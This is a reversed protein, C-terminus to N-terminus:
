TKWPGDGISREKLGNRNAYDDMDLGAEGTKPNGAVAKAGSEPRFPKLLALRKYYSV